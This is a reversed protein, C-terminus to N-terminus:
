AVKQLTEIFWRILCVHDNGTLRWQWCRHGSVIFLTRAAVYLTDHASFCVNFRDCYISSVADSLICAHLKSSNLM